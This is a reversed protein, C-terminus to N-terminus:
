VSRTEPRLWRHTAAGSRILGEGHFYQTRVGPLVPRSRPASSGLGGASTNTVLAEQGQSSTLLSPNM